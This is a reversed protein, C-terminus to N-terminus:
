TTFITIQNGRCGHRIGADQTLAWVGWFPLLLRKEPHSAAPELVSTIALMSPVAYEVVPHPFLARILSHCLPM